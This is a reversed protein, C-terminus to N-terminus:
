GSPSPPASRDAGSAIVMGFWGGNLSTLQLRKLLKMDEAISAKGADTSNDWGFMEAGLKYVQEPTLAMPKNCHQQLTGRTGCVNCQSAM